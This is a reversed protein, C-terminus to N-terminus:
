VGYLNFIPPTRKNNQIDENVRTLFSRMEQWSYEACSLTIFFTAPGLKEDLIELDGYKQSWYERTGRVATFM